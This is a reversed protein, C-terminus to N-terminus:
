GDRTRWGRGTPRGLDAHQHLERRLAVAAPLEAALAAALTERLRALGPGTTV